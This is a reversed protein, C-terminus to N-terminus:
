QPSPRSSKKRRRQSRSGKTPEQGKQDLKVPKYLWPGYIMAPSAELDTRLSPFLACTFRAVIRVCDQEMCQLAFTDVYSLDIQSADKTTMINTITAAGAADFTMTRHVLSNRVESILATQKLLLEVEQAIPLRQTIGRLKETVAPFSLGGLVIRANDAEMGSLFRLCYHGVGEVLSYSTILKGLAAYFDKDQAPAHINEGDVFHMNIELTPLEVPVDSEM